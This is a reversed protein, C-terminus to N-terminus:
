EDDHLSARSGLTQEAVYGAYDAFARATDRNEWGGKDQLAQPLDWHYLTCFPEIGNALLEDVVRNYFDLGKANPAGSGIPFIRSWAISFRYSRLGM